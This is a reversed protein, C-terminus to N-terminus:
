YNEELYIPEIRDSLWLGNAEKYFGTKNQFAQQSKVKLIIPEKTKRLGIKKAEEIKESLHVYQRQMPLLGKEFISKLAEKKTGHYLYTPPKTSEKAIKDKLSHGYSARIKNGLIEHRKKLSSEVIQKLIEKSLSDYKGTVKKIGIILSEINVWGDEDLEIHYFSPQHRLAHSIVRSLESFKLQSM